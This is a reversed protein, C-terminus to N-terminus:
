KNRSIQFPLAKGIIPSKPPAYGPAINTGMVRHHKQWLEVPTSTKGCATNLVKKFGAIRGSFISNIRAQADNKAPTFHFALTGNVIMTYSTNTFSAKVLLSLSPQMPAMSISTPAFYLSTDSFLCSIGYNKSWAQAYIKNTYKTAAHPSLM